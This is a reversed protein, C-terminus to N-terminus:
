GAPISEIFGAAEVGLSNAHHLVKHLATAQKERNAQLEDSPPHSFERRVELVGRRKVLVPPDSLEVEHSVAHEADYVFLSDGM